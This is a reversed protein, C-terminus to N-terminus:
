RLGPIGGPQTGSVTVTAGGQDADKSQDSKGEDAGKGQGNGNGNGGANGNGNGNGGGNGNGNGGGNGNGNGGGNGNGNSAFASQILSFGHVSTLGHISRDILLSPGVSVAIGAFGAILGRRFTRGSLHPLWPRPVPQAAPRVLRKRRRLDPLPM